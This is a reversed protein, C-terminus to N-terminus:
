FEEGGSAAFQAEFVEEGARVSRLGVAFGFAEGLSWGALPGVTTAELVAVLAGGVNRVIKVIIIPVAWM